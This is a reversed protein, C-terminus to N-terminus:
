ENIHKKKTTASELKRTKNFINKYGKSTEIELPPIDFFDIKSLRYTKKRTTASNTAEIDVYDNSKSMKRPPKSDMKLSTQNLLSKREIFMERYGKETRSGLYDLNIPLVSISRPKILSKQRHNLSSKTEKEEKERENM